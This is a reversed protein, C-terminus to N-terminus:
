CAALPSLVQRHGKVVVHSCSDETSASTAASEGSVVTCSRANTRRDTKGGVAAVVVVEM